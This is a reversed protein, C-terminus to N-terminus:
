VSLLRDFFSRYRRLALRLDETSTTDSDIGREIDQRQNHFLSQLEELLEGVLQDAKAVAQRPEDVFDGKVADWRSGYEAARQQPVLQERTGDDASTAGAATTEAPTAAAPASAAPRGAGNTPVGAPDVGRGPDTHSPTETHRPDTGVEGTGIGGTGLDGTGLDGPALDSRGPGNRDLDGPGLDDNGRDRGLDDRGLDDRGRYSHNVDTGTGTHETPRTM